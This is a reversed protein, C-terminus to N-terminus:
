RDLQPHVISSQVSVLASNELESLEMENNEGDTTLQLNESLTQMALSYPQSRQNVEM